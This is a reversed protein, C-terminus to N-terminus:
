YDCVNSTVGLTKEEYHNESDSKCYNLFYLCKLSVLKKVNQSPCGFFKYTCIKNSCSNYVMFENWNDCPLVYISQTKKMPSEKQYMKRTSQSYRM